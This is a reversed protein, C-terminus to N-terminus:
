IKGNAKLVVISIAIVSGITGILSPWNKFLWAVVGTAGERRNKDAMLVTLTASHAAVSQEVTLLRRDNAELTALRERVDALTETHTRSDRSLATLNDRIQMLVAAMSRDGAHIMDDFDSSQPM